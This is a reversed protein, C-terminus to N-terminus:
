SQKNIEHVAKRAAILAERKTEVTAIKNKAKPKIKTKAKPKTKPNLLVSLEAHQIRLHSELAAIEENLKDIQNSNLAVNEREKKKNSLKMNLNNITDNVTAQMLHSEDIAAERKDEADDNGRKRSYPLQTPVAVTTMAGRGQIVQVMQHTARVYIAMAVYRHNYIAQNNAPVIKSDNLEHWGRYIGPENPREFMDNVFLKWHKVQGNQEWHGILSIVFTDGNANRLIHPVCVPHLRDNYIAKQSFLQRNFHFVLGRTTVLPEIKITTKHPRPKKKLDYVANGEADCEHTGTLPNVMRPTCTECRMTVNHTQLDLSCVDLSNGVLVLSSQEVARM